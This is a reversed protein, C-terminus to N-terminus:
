DLSAVQGCGNGRGHLADRRNPVKHTIYTCKTFLFVECIGPLGAM